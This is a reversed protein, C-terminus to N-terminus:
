RYITGVPVFFIIGSASNLNYGRFGAVLMSEYGFLIQLLIKLQLQNYEAMVHINLMNSAFLEM